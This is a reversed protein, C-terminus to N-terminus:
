RKCIFPDLDPSDRERLLLVMTGLGMQGICLQVRGAGAHGGRCDVLFTVSRPSWSHGATLPLCALDDAGLHEEQLKM